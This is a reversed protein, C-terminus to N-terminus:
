VSRIKRNLFHLKNQIRCISEVLAVKGRVM